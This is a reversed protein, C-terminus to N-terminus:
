LNVAIQELIDDWVDLAKTDAPNRALVQATAAITITDVQANTKRRKYMQDILDAEGVLLDYTRVWLGIKSFALKDKARNLDLPKGNPVNHLARAREMKGDPYKPCPPIAVPIRRTRLQMLLLEPLSFQNLYGFDPDKETIRTDKIKGMQLCRKFLAETTNHSYDGAMLQQNIIIAMGYGFKGYRARLRELDSKESM